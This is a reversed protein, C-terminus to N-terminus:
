RQVHTLNRARARRRDFFAYSVAMSGTAESNGGGEGERRGQREPRLSFTEGDEVAEDRQVKAKGGSKTM